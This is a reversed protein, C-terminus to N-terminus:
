GHTPCQSLATDLAVQVNINKNEKDARWQEALYHVFDGPLETTLLEEDLDLDDYDTFDDADSDDFEDDRRTRM